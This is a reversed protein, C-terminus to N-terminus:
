ARIAEPMQQDLVVQDIGDPLRQHLHRAPTVHPIPPLQRTPFRCGGSGALDHGRPDLVERCPPRDGVVRSAIAQKRIDIARESEPFTARMEPPERPMPAAVTRM